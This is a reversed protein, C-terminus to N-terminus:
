ENDDDELKFVGSINHTDSDSDRLKKTHIPTLPPVEEIMPMSLSQYRIIPGVYNRKTPRTKKKEIEM